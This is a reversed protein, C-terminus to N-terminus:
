RGMKHGMIASPRCGTVTLVTLNQIFTCNTSREIRFGSKDSSNDTWSLDTKNTSVATVILTLPGSLVASSAPTAATVVNSPESEGSASFAFVRYYYTTGPLVFTDNFITVNAAVTFVTLNQAFAQDTSREILFGSEDSSNDTWSLSVKNVGIATITLNASPALFLYSKDSDPLSKTNGQSTVRPSVLPLNGFLSESTVGTRAPAHSNETDDWKTSAVRLQPTTRKDSQALVQPPFSTVVMAVLLFVAFLKARVSM